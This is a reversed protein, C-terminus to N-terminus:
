AKANRGKKADELDSQVYREPLVDEAKRKFLMCFSYVAGLLPVLSLIQVASAITNMQGQIWNKFTIACGITEPKLDRDPFFISLQLCLSISLEFTLVLSM